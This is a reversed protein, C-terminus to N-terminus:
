EYTQKTKFIKFIKQNIAEQKISNEMRSMAAQKRKSLILQKLDDKIMSLPMEQNQQVVDKVFVLYLSLTDSLVFKKSKKLIYKDNVRNFVPLEKKFDSLVYWQNATLNYKSFSNTNKILSDFYEPKGSFFWKKFKSIKPHNKQFVLFKPKIVAEKSKFYHRYKQYYAQLTDEYVVTDIYKQLLREKYTGTLLDRRYQEVLRNIKLTDVNQEAQKLLLTNYAWDEIYQHIANLSDEPSKDQYVAPDIDELYLYTDYIKAVPTKDPTKQFYQCGVFLLIVPLWIKSRINKAYNNGFLKM